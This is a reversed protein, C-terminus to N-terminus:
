DQEIPKAQLIMREWDPQITLYVYCDNQNLFYDYDLCIGEEPKDQKRCIYVNCYERPTMNFKYTDFQQYYRFEMSYTYMKRSCNIYWTKEPDLEKLRTLTPRSMAMGRRGVSHLYPLKNLGTLIVFLWIIFYLLPKSSGRSVKIMFNEILWVFALGVLPLLFIHSRELGPCRGM